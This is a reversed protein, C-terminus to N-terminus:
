SIRYILQLLQQAAEGRRWLYGAALAAALLLLAGGRKWSFALASLYAALLCTLALAPFREIVLGFASIVCGAAGLGACFALAAAIAATVVVERKM